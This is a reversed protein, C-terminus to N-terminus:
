DGRQEKNNPVDNKSFNTNPTKIRPIMSSDFKKFQRNLLPQKKNTYRIRTNKDM